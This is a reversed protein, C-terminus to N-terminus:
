FSYEFLVQAKWADTSKHADGWVKKDLDLYIYNAELFITLNEHVKYETLFDFEIAHDKETLYVSEGMTAKYGLRDLPSAFGTSDVSRKNNTGQIYALRLTHSLKDVFSMGDLQVGLGWSGVGSSSILSDGMCGASGAYGFALPAFGAGEGSIIPMRGFDGNGQNKSTDNRDDGSAYWGLLGPTGFASETKLEFLGAVLWGAYEPASRSSSSKGYMADLKISFPDFASLEFAAGVWWMNSAGKYRFDNGDPDGYEGGYRYNWYDSDNGTRAYMAWPTLTFADMTIPLTLGFVDMEDLSNKGNAQADGAYERDFPRAWFVTVGFADTFAYNAVVAAVDTDLVPNGFTASPLAIPQIGMRLQLKDMPSWELFAATITATAVDADLGGGSQDENNNGFYMTGIEFGLVAQLTDSAIFNFQPSIRQAARFADVHAGQKADTFITNDEWGFGLEWVMSAKVEIAQASGLSSFVLAATIALAVLRKM